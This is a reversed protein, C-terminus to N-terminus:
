LHLTALLVMLPTATVLLPVQKTNIANSTSDQSIPAETASFTNITTAHEIATIESLPNQTTNHVYPSTSEEITSATSTLTIDEKDTVSAGTTFINDSSASPTAASTTEVEAM